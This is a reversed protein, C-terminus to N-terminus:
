LLRRPPMHYTALDRVRPAPAAAYIGGVDTLHTRLVFVTPGTDTQVAHVIVGPAYGAVPGGRVTGWQSLGVLPSDIHVFAGAPIAAYPTEGGARDIFAGTTRASM